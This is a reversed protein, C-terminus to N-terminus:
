LDRRKLRAIFFFEIKKIKERWKSCFVSHSLIIFMTVTYRVSSTPGDEELHLYVADMQEHGKTTVMYYYPSEGNLTMEVIIHESTLGPSARPSQVTPVQDSMFM